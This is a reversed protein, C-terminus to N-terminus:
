RFVKAGPLGCPLDAPHSLTLVSPAECVRLDGESGRYIATCSDHFPGSVRYIYIHPQSYPHGRAFYPSDNGFVLPQHTHKYKLGGTM